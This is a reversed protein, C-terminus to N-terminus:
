LVFHAKVMHM